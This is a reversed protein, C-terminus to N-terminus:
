PKRSGKSQDWTKFWEPFLYRGPHPGKRDYDVLALFDMCSTYHCEYDLRRCTEDCYRASKCSRCCAMQAPHLLNFIPPM